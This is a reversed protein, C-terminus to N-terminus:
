HVAIQVSLLFRALYRRGPGTLFARTWGQADRSDTEVMATLRQRVFSFRPCSFLRHHRDDVAVECWDCHPDERSGFVFLYANTAYHGTLFQAVLAVERRSLDDTWSLSPALSPM